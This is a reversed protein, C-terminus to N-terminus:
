HMVPVDVEITEKRESWKIKVAVGGTVPMSITSDYGVAYLYYKGYRLEEIHVHNDTPEGEVKLDYDNTPDSPQEDADFKVYMTSAYIPTGSHSVKAHIEAKGGIDGKKCSFLITSTLVTLLITKSINKM